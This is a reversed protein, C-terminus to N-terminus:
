AEIKEAYAVLGGEESVYRERMGYDTEIESLVVGVPAAVDALSDVWIYLGAGKELAAVAATPMTRRAYDRGLLMLGTHTAEAILGVCEPEDTSLAQFGQKRYCAVRAAVDSVLLMSTVRRAAM